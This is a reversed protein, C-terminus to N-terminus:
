GPGYGKTPAKALRAVYEAETEVPVVPTAAQMHKRLNGPFPLERPSARRCADIAENLRDWQGSFDRAFLEAEDFTDANNAFRSPIKSLVSDRMERVAIPMDSPEDDGGDRLSSTPVTPVTRNPPLDSDASLRGPNAPLLAMGASEPTREGKRSNCARCAVVVNSADNSGHPDVHDYTGGALGKRDNWRVTTGCYRCTDGDRSRINHVVDYNAYLTRNRASRKNQAARRDNLKGAYEYWNHLAYTDGECDVFGAEVLAGVFRESDKVPWEAAMAIASKGLGHINGDTDANDLGWWWLAHLHGIVKHRDAKLLDVMRM